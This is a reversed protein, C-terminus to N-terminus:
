KPQIWYGVDKRTATTPRINDPLPALYPRTAPLKREEGLGQSRIICPVHNEVCEYCAHYGIPKSANRSRTSMRQWLCATSHKNITSSIAGKFKDADVTCIEKKIREKIADTLSAPIESIDFIDKGDWALIISYVDDVEKHDPVQVPPLGSPPQGLITEPTDTQAPTEDTQLLSSDAFSVSPSTGFSSRTNPRAPTSQGRPSLSQLGGRGRPSQLSCRRQEVISRLDVPTSLDQTLRRKNPNTNLTDAMGSDNQAIQDTTSKIGQINASLDTIAPVIKNIAPALINSVATPLNSIEPMAVINRAQSRVEALIEQHQSTLIDKISKEKELEQIRQYLDRAVQANKEAANWASELELNLSKSEEALQLQNRVVENSKMVDGLLRSKVDALNPTEQRNWAGYIYEVYENHEAMTPLLTAAQEIKALRADHASQNSPPDVLQALIEESTSM